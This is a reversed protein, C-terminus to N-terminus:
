WAYWPLIPYGNNKLFPVLAQLRHLSGGIIDRVVNYEGNRYSAKLPYEGRSNEREAVQEVPIIKPNFKQYEWVFLEWHDFHRSVEIPGGNTRHLCTLLSKVPDRLPSVMRVGRLQDVLPLHEKYSHGYYLLGPRQPVDKGVFCPLPVPKRGKGFIKKLSNTGTHPVSILIKPHVM